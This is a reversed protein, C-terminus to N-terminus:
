VVYYLGDHKAIIGRGALLRKAESATSSSVDLRAALSRDSGAPKWRPADSLEEALQAATQEDLTGRTWQAVTADTLHQTSARGSSAAKRLTAANPAGTTTEPSPRSSPSDGATSTPTTTRAEPAVEGGLAPGVGGGEACEAVDAGLVGAGLVGVVEGGLGCAGHEDNGM